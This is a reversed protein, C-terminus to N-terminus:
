KRHKPSRIFDVTLPGYGTTDLEELCSSKIQIQKKDIRPALVQATERGIYGLKMGDWPEGIAEVRIANPDAENEPERILKVDLPCCNSIELITQAKVHHKMGVLHLEMQKAM